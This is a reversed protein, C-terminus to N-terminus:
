MHKNFVKAFLMNAIVAAFLSQVSSTDISIFIVSPSRILREVEYQQFILVHM